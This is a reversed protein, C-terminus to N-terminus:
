APLPPPPLMYRITPLCAAGQVLDQLDATTSTCLQCLAICQFQKRLRSFAVVEEFSVWCIDDVLGANLGIM